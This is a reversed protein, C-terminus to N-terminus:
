TREVIIIDAFGIQNTAAREIHALNRVLEVTRAAV